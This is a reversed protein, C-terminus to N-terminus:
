LGLRDLERDIERTRVTEFRVWRVVLPILAILMLSDGGIWMIAGGLHLDNLIPMAGMRDMADYAPFPNHSSMALALGTITDVPVAAMVYVLRLGPHVATAGDVGLAPRFFLYGVVLFGIQETHHFWSYRLMLDFLGSLHTAPIVLAYLAFGMVPHLVVRGFPSELLAFARRSRAAILSLPEGLAILPAAVMILLLHQVMHAGFLEMDYYGIVSQTAIWTVVLGSGFAVVQSPRRDPVGRSAWVYLVFVGFLLLNPLLGLHFRGLHAWSFPPLMPDNGSMDVDYPTENSVLM